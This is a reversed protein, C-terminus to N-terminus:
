LPDRLLVKGGDDGGDRDVVVRLEAGAGVARRPLLVPPGVEHFAHEWAGVGGAGPRAVALRLGLAVALSFREWGGLRVGWYMM